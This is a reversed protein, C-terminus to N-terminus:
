IDEYLLNPEAPNADNLYCCYGIVIAPLFIILWFNQIITITATATSSTTKISRRCNFLSVKLPGPMAASTSVYPVSFALRAAVSDTALRALTLM